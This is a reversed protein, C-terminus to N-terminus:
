DENQQPFHSFNIRSYKGKKKLCYIFHFYPESLM